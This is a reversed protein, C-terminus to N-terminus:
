NREYIGHDVVQDRLPWGVRQLYTINYTHAKSCRASLGQHPAAVLIREASGGGVNLAQMQQLHELKWLVDGSTFAVM